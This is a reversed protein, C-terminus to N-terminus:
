FSNDHRGKIYTEKISNVLHAVKSIYYHNNKNTEPSNIKEIFKTVQEPWKNEKFIAIIEEAEEKLGYEEEPETQIYIYKYQLSIKILSTQLINRTVKHKNKRNFKLQHHYIHQLITVFVNQIM